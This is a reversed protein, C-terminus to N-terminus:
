NWNRDSIEKWEEPTYDSGTKNKWGVKIIKKDLPHIFFMKQNNYSYPTESLLREEKLIRQLYAYFYRIYFHFRFLGVEKPPHPNKIMHSILEDLIPSNPAAAIFSQAMVGPNHKPFSDRVMSLFVYEEALSQVYAAGKKTLFNDTDLYYGGKKYLICYRFFDAKHAGHRIKLFTEVHTAGYNSELFNICDDNDYLKIDFDPLLEQHLNIRAQHFPNLGRTDVFFLQKPIKTM